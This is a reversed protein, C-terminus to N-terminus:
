TLSIMRLTTDDDDDDLIFVENAAEEVDSDTVSISSFPNAEDEADQLVQMQTKLMEKGAACPQSEKFCHIDDDESGDVKINLACSKFSRKIIDVALSSWSELIWEVVRRRPPAKLNGEATENHIGEEALWQDYKETCMAKFPKNWSVDPAQIYKTCGGPIIVQDINSSKLAAAVSSEMHCEYSDWALFRKGFSFSGLVKKTYELTLETNMWGNSSSAVVCRTKFEDNLAKSERKAGKFVIFPKLKTGDAKATLCVSVRLKEHGTTKMTVTKDGTKHVTTDSIMDSWVPTEDMAIINSPLYNYKSAYRRAHLIYSVLKDILKSPDKQAVSTKRRLSLGNRHMFKQLWGTSAVFTKSNESDNEKAKENYVFLAKKMILKRSVRLGKDRRDYIWEVLVEEMQQDLPKRGGGDLRKRKSGRDKKKLSQLSEKCKSWERIRKREVNFKKSASNISNLEAFAIAELKFKLTYSSIKKGKHSMAVENTENEDAM